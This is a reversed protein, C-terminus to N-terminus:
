VNMSILRVTFIAGGDPHNEAKVTGGLKRVVTNTFSLGIGVSSSDADKGRYYREFIHPLDDPDIGGGTDRIVFETSVATQSVEITITGEPPTHEMCNKVINLLAETLWTKDSVFTIDEPVKKILTIERLEMTMELPDCVDEILEQASIEEKRFQVAEADLRSIKLLTKIFNNIRNIMDLMRRASRKRDADSVDNESLQEASLTLSALPTKLQHSIDALWKALFVKDEELMEEQRYHTMVMGQTVDQLVAFDGEKFENFNLERHGHLNRDVKVTFNRVQKYHFYASLLFGTILLLLTIVVTLIVASVSVTEQKLFHLILIVAGVSIAIGAFLPIRVEPNRLLRM